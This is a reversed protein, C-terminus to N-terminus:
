KLSGSGLGSVTENSVGRVSGRRTRMVLHKNSNHRQPAGERVLPRLAQMNESIEISIEKTLQPEFGPPVADLGAGCGRRQHGRDPGLRCRGM